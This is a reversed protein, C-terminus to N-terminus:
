RLYKQVNQNHEDLTRAFHVNGNTDHIYYYYTNPKPNRVANIAALGPNCIPTPPYGQYKYTNYPNDNQKDAQTIPSKWDRKPYLLTADIQLLWGEKYRRQIIDAIMPRDESTYGEREVM